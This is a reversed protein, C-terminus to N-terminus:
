EDVFVHKSMPMVVRSASARNTWVPSGKPPEESGCVAPLPLRIRRAGHRQEGKMVSALSVLKGAVLAADRMGSRLCDFGAGEEGLKEAVGDKLWDSTSRGRVHDPSGAITAM